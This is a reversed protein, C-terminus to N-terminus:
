NAVDSCVRELMKRALDNIQDTSMERQEFNNFANKAAKEKTNTDSVNEFIDGQNRKSHYEKESYYWDIMKQRWNIPMGSYNRWGQCQYHNFFKDVNLLDLGKENKFDECEQRTPILSPPKEDKLPTHFNYVGPMEDDYASDDRQHDTIKGTCDSQPSDSIVLREKNQKNTNIIDKNLQRHNEQTPFDVTPKEVVPKKNNEESEDEQIDSVDDAAKNKDDPTNDRVPEEYIVYIMGGLKGQENRERERKVYGAGELEIITSKIASVGDLCILALGEVTYDWDEPLSLMISLLGKAKNSISKDRLHYNSMVTYNKNKEVRCVAM